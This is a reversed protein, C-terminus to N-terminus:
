KVFRLQDINSYNKNAYIYCILISNSNIPLLIAM